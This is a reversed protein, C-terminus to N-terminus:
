GKISGLMVGKVFYKQIFPYVCLIPIITIIIMAYRIGQSLAQRRDGQVQQMVNNISLTILIRQLIVQVPYLSDKNLYILASFYMNWKDVAIFLVMVAIIAKSLPIIIRFFISLHSAGDIQASEVLSEPLSEFFTKTMIVYWVVVLGPVILVWRNDILGLNRILIYSPIMGGGFYMTIMLFILFGSRGRLNKRSLPYATAITAVLGLATGVFTYWITNYYALWFGKYRVVYSYSELSLKKPLLWIKGRVVLHPDSISVSVLYIFPYLISILLLVQVIINVINFIRDGKTDIRIM